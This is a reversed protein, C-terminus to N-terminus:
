TFRGVNNVGRPEMLHQDRQTGLQARLQGQGLLRRQGVQNGDIAAQQRSQWPHSPGQPLVVLIAGGLHMHGKRDQPVPRDIHRYRSAVARLPGLPPAQDLRPAEVHDIAPVAVIAQKLVQMVQRAMDETPHLVVGGVLALLLPSARQRSDVGTDNTIYEQTTQTRGM